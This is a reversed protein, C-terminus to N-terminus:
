STSPSRNAPLYILRTEEAHNGNQIEAARVTGLSRELRRSWHPPMQSQSVLSQGLPGEVGEGGFAFDVAIFRPVDGLAALSPRPLQPFRHIHALYLADCLLVSFRGPFTCVLQESGAARFGEISISSLDM